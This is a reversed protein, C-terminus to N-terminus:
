SRKGERGGNLMNLRVSGGLGVLVLCGMSWFFVFCGVVNQGSVAPRKCNNLTRWPGLPAGRRAPGASSEALPTAKPKSSTCTSRHLPPKSFNPRQSYTKSHKPYSNLTRAPNSNHESWINPSPKPPPTPKEQLALSRFSHPLSNPKIELELVFLLLHPNFRLRFRMVLWWETTRTQGFCKLQWTRERPKAEKPRLAWRTAYPAAHLRSHDMSGSFLTILKILRVDLQSRKWPVEAEPKFLGVLKFLKFKNTSRFMCTKSDMKRSWKTKWSKQASHNNNVGLNWRPWPVSRSKSPRPWQKAETWSSPLM